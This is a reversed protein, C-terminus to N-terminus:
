ENEMNKLKWYGSKPSGVLRIIGLIKLKELNKDIATTSIGLTEAMERKSIRWYSFIMQLISKQSEALGDALRNVLREAEQSAMKNLAGPKIDADALEIHEQSLEIMRLTVDTMCLTVDIMPSAVDIMPLTVDTM